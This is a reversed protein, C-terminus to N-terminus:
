TDAIYISWLYQTEPWSHVLRHVTPYMKNRTVNTTDDFSTNWVTQSLPAVVGVEPQEDLVTNNIPSMMRFSNWRIQLLNTVCANTSWQKTKTSQIKHETSFIVIDSQHETRMCMTTRKLLVSRNHSWVVSVRLECRGEGDEFRTKWDTLSQSWTYPTQNSYM